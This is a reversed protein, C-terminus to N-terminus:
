MQRNEEELGEIAKHCSEALEMVQSRNIVLPPMLRATQDKAKITLV